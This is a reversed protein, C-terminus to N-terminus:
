SLHSEQFMQAPASLIEVSVARRAPENAITTFWGQFPRASDPWTLWKFKPSCWNGYRRFPQLSLWWIKYVDLNYRTRASSLLGGRFPAHDLDCSGNELSLSFKNSAPFSVDCAARRVKTIASGLNWRSSEEQQVEVTGCCQQTWDVSLSM